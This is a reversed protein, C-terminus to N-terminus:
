VRRRAAVGLLGLGLLLGTTPEPLPNTDYEIYYRTSAGLNVDNWGASDHFWTILYDENPSNNPEGGSWPAFGWPEGTIWKWGGSPEPSGPEQYGGLFGQYSRYGCAACTNYHPDVPGVWDYMSSRLFSWEDASTITALYGGRSLADIRATEWTYSNPDGDLSRGRFDYWHGNGGDAVAWEVPIAGAGSSWALVVLGLLLALKGM